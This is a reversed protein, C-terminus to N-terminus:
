RVGYLSFQSYQAWNGSSPYFEIASNASTSMWLGSSLNIRGSGNGDWGQLLRLTKYKSTNAYDLIDLVGVAFSSATANAGAVNVLNLSTQTSGASAAVSAGDGFLYHWAYNSGTDSNLRANIGTETSAQTSRVIYRIQLHKYTNPIGAFTISATSASLTVTALSDYAGDPQWLKGSIQSAMIGLIPM